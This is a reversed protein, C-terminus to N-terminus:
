GSNQHAPVPASNRLPAMGENQLTFAGLTVHNDQDKLENWQSANGFPLPASLFAAIVRPRRRKAYYFLGYLAV